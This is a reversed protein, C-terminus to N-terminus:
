LASYGEPVVDTDYFVTAAFRYETNAAGGNAIMSVAWSGPEPGQVTLSHPSDPAGPSGGTATHDINAVGQTDGASPSSLAGDLDVVPDDWQWEVFLLRAGADVMVEGGGQSGALPGASAVVLGSGTTVANGPVGGPNDPNDPDNPDIPDSGPANLCGALVFLAAVALIRM